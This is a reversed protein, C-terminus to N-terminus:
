HGAPLGRRGGGPSPPDQRASGVPPSVPCFARLGSRFLRQPVVGACVFDGGSPFPAKGRCLSFATCPFAGAAPTGCFSLTGAWGACWINHQIMSIIFRFDASGKLPRAHSLVRTCVRSTLFEVSRSYEDSNSLEVIKILIRFHLVNTLILSQLELIRFM